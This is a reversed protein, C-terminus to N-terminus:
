IEGPSDLAAFSPAQTGVCENRSIRTLFTTGPDGSVGPDQNEWPLLGPDRCYLGGGKFYQRSPIQTKQSLYVGSRDNNARAEAPAVSWNHVLSAANQPSSVVLVQSREPPKNIGFVLYSQRHCM